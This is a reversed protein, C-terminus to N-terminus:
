QLRGSNLAVLLDEVVRICFLGDKPTAQETDDPSRRALKARAASTAAELGQAAELATWGREAALREALPSSLEDGVVEDNVVYIRRFIAQNLERRTDDSARRYLGYPDALLEVCADIYRLAEGLDQDVAGLQATRKDRQPSIEHLRVRVRATSLEGDAALDIQNEEKVSLQKV